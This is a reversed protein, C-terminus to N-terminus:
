KGCEESRRIIHIGKAVYNPSLKKRNREVINMPIDTVARWASHKEMDFLTTLSVLEIAGRMEHVDQADSSIVVPVGLKRAIAVEKRLCSILHVRSFTTHCLLLAMEVELAALGQSALRAEALDFFRQRPNISPFVLLDVRHDKAAQRAVSKSRCYVSVLEFRRRLQRLDRILGKASKPWLDVRTVLDLGQDICVKRIDNALNQRNRKPFPVGVSRYGLESARRLMERTEEKRNLPLNLHLDIPYKM